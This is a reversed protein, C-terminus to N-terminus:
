VEDGEEEVCIEADSIGNSKTVMTITIAKEWM